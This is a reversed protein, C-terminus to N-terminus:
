RGSSQRAASLCASRGTPFIPTAPLDLALAKRGEVITRAAQRGTLAGNAGSLCCPPRKPKRCSDARKPVESPLALRGRHIAAEKTLHHRVRKRWTRASPRD